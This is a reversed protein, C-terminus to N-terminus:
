EGPRHCVSKPDNTIETRHAVSRHLSSVYLSAEGFCKLFKYPSAFTRESLISATLKKQWM